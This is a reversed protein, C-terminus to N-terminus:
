YVKSIAEPLTRLESREWKPRINKEIQRTYEQAIRAAIRGKAQRTPIYQELYQDLGESVTPLTKRAKREVLPDTGARVKRMSDRTTVRAQELSFEGTTGINM